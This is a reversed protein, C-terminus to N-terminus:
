SGDIQEWTKSHDVDRSNALDCRRRREEESLDLARGLVDEFACFVNHADILPIGLEESLLTEASGMHPGQPGCHCSLAAILPHEAM